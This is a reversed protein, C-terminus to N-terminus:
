CHELSVISGGELKLPCYYFNIKTLYNSLELFVIYMQQVSAAYADDSAM